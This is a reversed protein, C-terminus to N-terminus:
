MGISTPNRIARIRLGEFMAAIAEVMGALTAESDQHGAALRLTRITEVLSDRCQRDAARM